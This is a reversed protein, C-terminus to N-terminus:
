PVATGRFLREISAAEDNSSCCLGSGMSDVDRKRYCLENLNYSHAARVHITYIWSIRESGQIADFFKSECGPKALVCICKLRVDGDSTAVYATDASVSISVGLLMISLLAPVKM